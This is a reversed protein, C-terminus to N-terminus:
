RSRDASDTRSALCPLGRDSASRAAARRASEARRGRFGKNVISMPAGNRPTIMGVFGANSTRSFYSRPIVYPATTKSAAEAGHSGRDTRQRPVPWATRRGGSVVITDNFIM